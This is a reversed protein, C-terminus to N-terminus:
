LLIGKFVEKVMALDKVHAEVGDMTNPTKEEICQEIVIHPRLKMAKLENAFRQYDIDGAGFTESWVGNVSQRLHLEVIRNGYMKLVDFVAVQSDSSGRYVWHTDFCFSVNQPTTNQLVHHFERAGARLEVDHTHYALTLGRKRLEMGLKEMSKAQVMLEADSKIEPGGWKIPSPNTVVIKTGLKVVEDAISLVTAISKEAEDAKHLVSNVYVSPMSISYKRLFPALRKVDEASELGPEYAKIGTQALEALNKDLDEGWKKDKRRYFTTWNYANCSIPFNFPKLDKGKYSSLLSTASVAAISQLFNRRNPTM